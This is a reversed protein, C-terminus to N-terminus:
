AIRYIIYTNAATYRIQFQASTGVAVTLAGVSTIGTNVAVTAIGSGTNIIGLRFSANTGVTGQATNLATGTPLTLTAAGGTYQIHGGLVQAGTLSTAGSLSAPAPMIYWGNLQTYVMEKNTSCYLARHAARGATGNCRVPSVFFGAASASVCKGIAISCSAQSSTGASYGIAIAYCGQTGRGALGGIAIAYTKQCTQGALYGISIACQQQNQYGASQGIGIGRTGQSSYGAQYGIGIACQGQTSNGATYGIAIANGRQNTQGAAIGIGISQTAQSTQGAVRGIAISCQGQSSSAACRGIAVSNPGSSSQQAAYGIAINYQNITCKGACVGIAVSYTQQNTLGANTGLYVKCTFTTGGGGGSAAGYAFEKTSSNYFVGCNASAASKTRVPSVFFGAASASVNKGIAISCAPQSSGGASYGIAIAYAGQTSAASYGIAIGYCCQSSQAAITGIAIGGYKQPGGGTGGGAQNGIAIANSQQTQAVQNGIAIAQCGQSTKAAQYGIAVSQIGQTKGACSGLYVKCTFTSGSSAAGYAVEKTTPNYFIGCTASACAKARIPSVIFGTSPPILTSGIAIACSVGLGGSITLAGTTPSTSNVKAGGFPINSSFTVSGNNTVTYANTSSDTLLASSSSVNLLLKTNTIASLPAVPPTFTSTYVATGNVFRFNTLQGTIQTTSSWDQGIKFSQGAATTTWPSLSTTTGSAVGNIYITANTGDFVAALHTWTNLAISGTSSLYHWSGNYYGFWPVGSGGGGPVGGMGLVFPINGGAYNASVIANGTASTQYFWTEITFPTTGTALSPNFSAISLYNSGNFNFSGTAAYTTIPGVSIGTANINGSVGLGGAITLAGTASSTSTFTNSIYVRSSTNTTIVAGSNALANNATSFAANAQAFAANGIPEGSAGSAVASWNFGSTSNWQLYTGNASPAAIGVLNNSTNVYAIQNATPVTATNINFINGSGVTLGNKVVFNNTNATAM